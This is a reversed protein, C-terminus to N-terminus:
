VLGYVRERCSARGIEPMIEGGDTTRYTRVYNVKGAMTAFDREIQERRPKISPIPEDTFGSRLFSLVGTAKSELPDQDKAWPAYTVGHLPGEINAAEIRSDLARWGAITAAVTLLFVLSLRIM